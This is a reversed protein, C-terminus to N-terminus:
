SGVGGIGDGLLKAGLVVLIVCMIVANHESMFQKISELPKAASEPAVMYWLVPGVVSISAIAVFVAVAIASDGTSLGAQAISASAALTLALNKPNLGSLAAGFVFAKGPPMQDITQMWKPMDATEGHRPRRSWERRALAFFLIGLAVKGWDISDSTSSTPDNVVLLVVVSVVVLGVIWGLAFLPGDSRARPSSLVLIIAIIPIPSIAVGIASPLLNGIAQSLV